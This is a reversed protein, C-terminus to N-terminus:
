LESNDQGVKASGDAQMKINLNQVIDVGQTCFKSSKAGDMACLTSKMAKQTAEVRALVMELKDLRSFGNVGHGFGSKEQEADQKAEDLARLARDREGDPRKWCRM